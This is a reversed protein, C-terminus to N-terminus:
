SIRHQDGTPKGFCVFLHMAHDRGRGKLINGQLNALLKRGEQSDPNVPKNLDLSM